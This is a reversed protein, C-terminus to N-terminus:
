RQTTKAFTGAESTLAIAYSVVFGLSAMEAPYEGDFIEGRPLPM